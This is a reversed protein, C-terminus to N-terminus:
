SKRMLGLVYKIIRCHFQSSISLEYHIVAASSTVTPCITKNLDYHDIRVIVIESDNKFWPPCKNTKDVQLQVIQTSSKGHCFYM